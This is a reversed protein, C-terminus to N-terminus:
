PAMLYRRERLSPKPDDRGVLAAVALGVAGLRDVCVADKMQRAIDDSEHVRKPLARGRDDPV